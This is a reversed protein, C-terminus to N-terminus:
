LVETPHFSYEETNYLSGLFSFDTILFFLEHIQTSNEEIIVKVQLLFIDCLVFSSLACTYNQIVARIQRM